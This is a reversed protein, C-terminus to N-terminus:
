HVEEILNGTVRGDHEDKAKNNLSARASDLKMRIRDWQIQMRRSWPNKRDEKELNTGDVEFSKLCM